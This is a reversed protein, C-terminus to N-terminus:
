FGVIPAERRVSEEVNCTNREMLNVSRILSLGVWTLALFYLKNSLYDMFLGEIVIKICSICTTYVYVYMYMYYM